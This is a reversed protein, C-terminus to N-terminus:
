HGAASLDAVGVAHALVEERAVRRRVVPVVERPQRAVLAHEDLAPVRAAVVKDALELLHAAPGRRHAIWRLGHWRGEREVRPKDIRGRALLRGVPLADFHAENGEELSPQRPVAGPSHQVHARTDLHGWAHIRQM